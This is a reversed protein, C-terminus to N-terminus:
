RKTRFVIDWFSTIVGFNCDNFSHHVVHRMKAEYLGSGPGLSWRHVAHHVVIFAMYGAMLGILLSVGDVFGFAAVLM